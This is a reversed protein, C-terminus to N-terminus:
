LGLREKLKPLYSDSIKLRTEKGDALVVLTGKSRDRTVKLIFEVNVIYSRHTRAFSGSGLREELRGLSYGTLFRRDRTHAYSYKGAAEFYSIEALPVLFTEDGRQVPLRQLRTSRSLPLEPATRAARELIKAIRAALELPKFPKLVYDEAGKLAKVVVAEDGLASLFLIPTHRTAQNSRMEMMVELGSKGPMMMDLIVLDPGVEAAAHAAEEPDQCLTVEFGDITLVAEVLKLMEPDDDVVLISSGKAGAVDEGGRADNGIIDVPDTRRKGPPRWPRGVTRALLSPRAKLAPEPAGGGPTRM